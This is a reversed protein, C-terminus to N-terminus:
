LYAKRFEIWHEEFHCIASHDLILAEAAPLLTQFIESVDRHPEQPFYTVTLYLPLGGVYEPPEKTQEVSPYLLM